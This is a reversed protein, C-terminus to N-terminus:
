KQLKGLKTQSKEVEKQTKPYIVKVVKKQYPTEEADTGKGTKIRMKRKVPGANWDYTSGSTIALEVMMEPESLIEKIVKKILNRLEEKKV